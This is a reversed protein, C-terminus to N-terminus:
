RVETRELCDVILQGFFPFGIRGAVEFEQEGRRRRSIDSEGVPSRGVDVYKRIEITGHTGVIYTRGDGWTRLGDPTFWDVRSHCWAGSSVQAVAEGIDELEPTEPHGANAVRAYHVVGADSGTYHLFQEFQHSGIDTLIGGYRAKEFFWDPRSFNALRHPGTIAMHVVDGIAGDRVLEAGHWAAENHVREGYYVAFKQATRGAVAAAAALQDLTTFPCKDTFYDKGAEMVRCGLAGREDPIVASAIMAIASDDLLRDLEDVPEASPFRTRFAAVKAQDPDCVAVVEAGAAVLAATMTNIHGHDLGAAAFRFEGPAVVETM